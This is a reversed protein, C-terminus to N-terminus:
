GNNEVEAFDIGAEDEIEVSTADEAQIPVLFGQQEFWPWLLELDSDRTASIHRTGQIEFYREKAVGRIKLSFRALSIVTDPFIRQVTPLVPIADNGKLKLSDIERGEVSWEVRCLRISEVEPIMPCALSDQGRDILPSLSFLDIPKFADADAFILLGFGKRYMEAQWLPGNPLGLIRKDIDFHVGDSKEPRFFISTVAGDDPQLVGRRTVTEGHRVLFRVIGGDHFAKVQAVKSRKNKRFEEAFLGEVRVLPLADPDFKDPLPKASKLYNFSRKNLVARRDHRDILISANKMFVRVAVEAPTINDDAGDIILGLAKADPFLMDMGASDSMESIMYLNGALDGPLEERHQQLANALDEFPFSEDDGELSIGIRNFFDEHTSLLASLVTAGMVRLSDVDMFTRLAKKGM